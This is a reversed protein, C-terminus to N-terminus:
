EPELGGFRRHRRQFEAIAAWLEAPSFDPWLTPTVWLESYASQWLLFNSLRMEGSPRIILDPDPLGATYLYEALTREDIAEPSLKGSAAAQAILRTARVLEARGGYNVAVNLILNHEERTEEQAKRLEARVRPPLSELDGIPRIQVGNQKLEALEKQLYEVLLEMLSNVEEPPRKWNETSFAYVTLVGIGVDICAEVISRLAEVGARHGLVRPLGRRRAWRGNGDMIIAVHRPLRNPDIRRRLRRAQLRRWVRRNRWLWAVVSSKGEKM